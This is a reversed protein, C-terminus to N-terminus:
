SSTSHPSTQALKENISRDEKLVRKYFLHANWFLILLGYVIEFVGYSPFPLLLLSSLLMLSAVIMSLMGKRVYKLSRFIGFCFVFFNYTLFFSSASIRHLLDNDMPVIATLFLSVFSVIILAHLIKINFPKNFYLRLSKKANLYIAFAIMILSANWYWATLEAVGFYSLPKEIPNFDPIMFSCIVPSAVGLFMSFILYVRRWFRARSIGM